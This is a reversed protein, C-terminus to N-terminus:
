AVLRYDHHIGGLIPLAAVKGDTPPPVLLEPYPDPIAHTAQSPRGHNYYEIYEKCVRYIHKECFFIFYDLAEVRLTLNFRELYGNADPANYPIPIGEIGTTKDLWMDFAYRYSKENHTKKRGGFQGFVGDNDHILFRPGEGYPSIERIQQKVWDL